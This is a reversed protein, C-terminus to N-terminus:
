STRDLEEQSIYFQHSVGAKIVLRRKGKQVECAVSYEFYGHRLGELVVQELKKLARQCENSAPEEADRAAEVATKHAM